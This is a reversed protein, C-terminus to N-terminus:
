KSILSEIRATRKEIQRISSEISAMKKQALIAKRGDIHAKDASDLKDM